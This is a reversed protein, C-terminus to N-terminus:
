RWDTERTYLFCGQRSNGQKEAKTQSDSTTWKLYVWFVSHFWDVDKVQQFVKKVEEPTAYGYADYLLLIVNSCIKHLENKELKQRKETIAKQLLVRLEDESEGEFKPLPFPGDLISNPTDAKKEL